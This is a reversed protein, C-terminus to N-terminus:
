FNYFYGVSIQRLIKATSERYEIKLNRKWSLGVGLLLENNTDLFRIVSVGGNIFPRLNKSGFHNGILLNVGYVKIADNYYAYVGSNESINYYNGEVVLYANRFNKPFNLRVGLGIFWNSKNEVALLRGVNTGLSVNMKDKNTKLVNQYKEGKCVLYLSCLKLLEERQYLLADSVTVGECDALLATLQGLYGKKEEIYSTNERYLNQKSYFLEQFIGDKDIFYHPEEKADIMEYINIKPNKLWAQLFYFGDMMVPNYPTDFYRPTNLSLAVLVKKAIYEEGHVSFGEISAAEIVEPKDDKLKRFEITKPSKLWDQYKIFGEITKGNKIIKGVEFQQSYTSFSFFLTIALLIVKKM